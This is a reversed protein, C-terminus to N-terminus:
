KKTKRIRRAKKEVVTEDIIPHEVIIESKESISETDTKPEEVEKSEVKIGKKRLYYEKAKQRKYVLFNPDNEKRNQYYKKRQLNVKDKNNERYKSTARKQADSYTSIIQISTTGDPNIKIREVM